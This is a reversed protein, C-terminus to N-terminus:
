SIPCSDELISSSLSLFLLSSPSSFFSNSIGGMLIRTAPYVMVWAKIEPFNTIEQM